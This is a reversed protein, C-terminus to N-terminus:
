QHRPTGLWIESGYIGQGGVETRAGYTQEPTQGFLVSAYARIRKHFGGGLLKWVPLGLAKGKIDWLAMDVGGMAHIALGRRGAYINQRYM